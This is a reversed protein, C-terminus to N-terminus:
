TQKSVVEKKRFKLLLAAILIFSIAGQMDLLVDQFVGTRGPMFSQHIEDLSSIIFVTAIALISPMRWKLKRYLLYFIVGVIGFGVFHTAKRILFEVFYYYGRTEVSITTGWYQIEISSILEEFPKNALLTRLEPVITQQEYPMNSAFAVVAIALIALSIFKKM